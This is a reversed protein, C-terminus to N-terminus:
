PKMASDDFSFDELWQETTARLHRGKPEVPYRIPQGAMVGTAENDRKVFHGNVIVHPLGIPPLGNQGAKYSSGEAVTAPDFVVIDAAKGEQLRGRVQMQELGTKGLHYAPWYSLQSLTFMLPVGQERALRLVISHTGSTRPHGKFKAPDDDWGLGENQWMGDSGVVMHPMRLWLPLWDKRAPNFVVVTRGPDDEAIQLYEDKSLYKDQSPDYLVEEYKLGLLGELGEPRLPAAGIATSAAEYPYYEAWMNMGLERAMSLKEEIEWWGYDNNHSYLLPAQLLAANAFIENFGIQAEVPPKTSGHFRTHSAIPRGYRAAAKQVEFMEYTSIGTPAYGPTTGVCLAGQRLNEDLIRTIQNIQDLDSVTVSWGEVGDEESSKARLIFADTADVPDPLDIGDHVKIRVIEHAVCQGYNIPWKGAEREYWAGINLAGLEYDMGSTVGDMMAMKIVYKDSSHTHTDIFGATVVHGSADISDAGSIDEATITVIVGGKIGVNRVGDFDCESDMVRGNLIVTDYYDSSPSSDFSCNAGSSAEAMEAEDDSTSISVECASLLFAGIAILSLKKM